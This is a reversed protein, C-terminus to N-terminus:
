DNVKTIEFKIKDLVNKINVLNLNNQWYKEGIIVGTFDYLENETFLDKNSYIYKLIDDSNLSSITEQIIINLNEINNRNSLIIFNRSVLSESVEYPFEFWNSDRIHYNKDYITLKATLVDSIYQFIYAAIPKFKFADNYILEVTFKHNENNTNSKFYDDSWMKEEANETIDFVSLEIFKNNIDANLQSIIDNLNATFSENKELEIQKISKLLNNEVIWQRSNILSKFQNMIKLSNTELIFLIINDRTHADLYFDVGVLYGQAIIQKYFEIAIAHEVIHAIGNGLTTQKVFKNRYKM